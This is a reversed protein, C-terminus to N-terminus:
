PTQQVSYRLGKYSQNLPLNNETNNGPNLPAADVTDPAGDNDDDWDLTLGSCSNGSCGSGVWWSDPRGDGDTDSSAANTHPYDDLHDAVGDGDFDYTANNWGIDRMLAVTLAKDFPLSPYHEMLENKGGTYTVNTNWHSVSSGTVLTSPAYLRPYGHTLGSTLVSKVHQVANGSWVLDGSDVASAVREANTMAPWNKNLSNDRLFKMFIDDFGSSKAGTSLNVLTIFGLGHGMEHQVINLLDYQNPGPNHDYGYYWTANDLCAPDTGIKSNVSITIAAASTTATIHNKLSRPYWTSAYAAGAFDKDSATSGGIAFIVETANCLQSTFQASVTINVSPQVTETWIEAAKNFVNARQQAVTVGPNGGIPSVATNDSFGAGQSIVFSGAWASLSNLSLMVLATLLILKKTMIQM